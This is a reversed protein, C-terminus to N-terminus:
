VAKPRSLSVILPLIHIFQGIKKGSLISFRCMHDGILLCDGGAAAIHRVVREVPV